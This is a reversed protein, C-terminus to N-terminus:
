IREWYRQFYLCIPIFERVVDFVLGNILTGYRIYFLLLLVNKIEHMHKGSERNYAQHILKITKHHFVSIEGRVAAQPWDNNVAMSIMSAEHARISFYFGKHPIENLRM